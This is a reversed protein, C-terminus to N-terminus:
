ATRRRVGLLGLLGSGFLWVAAPVPVASVPSSSYVLNDLTHTEAVGSQTGATLVVDTFAVDTVFGWFSGAISRPIETTLVETGGALLSLTVTIGTGMGGPGALDWDGGFGFIATAFSFTTSDGGPVVRDHWVGGTVEGADSVVSLEANLVTDSFDETAVTSFASEWAAKDTYVTTAAHVQITLGLMCVLALLITIRKNM